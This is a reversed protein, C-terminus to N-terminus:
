ATKLHLEILASGETRDILDKVEIHLRHSGLIRM